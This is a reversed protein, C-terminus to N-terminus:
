KEQNIDIKEAEIHNKIACDREKQRAIEVANYIHRIGAYPKSIRSDTVFDLVKSMKDELYNINGIINKVSKDSVVSHPVRADIAMGQVTQKKLVQKLEDLSKFYFVPINRLEAEEIEAKMGSSIGKHTDAFVVDCVRLLKKSSRLGIAREEEVADDLFQTYMLHPVIVEHGYLVVTKAIKRTVKLRYSFEVETDARYRSCIYVTM